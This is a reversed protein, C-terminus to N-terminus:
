NKDYNEKKYRDEWVLITFFLSTTFIYYLYFYFLDKKEPHYFYKVWELYQFHKNLDDKHLYFHFLTHLDNYLWLNKFFFQYSLFEFIVYLIFLRIYKLM